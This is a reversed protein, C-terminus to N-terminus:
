IKNEHQNKNLLFCREYHSICIIYIIYLAFISEVKQIALLCPVVNLYVFGCSKM